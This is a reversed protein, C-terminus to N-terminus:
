PYADLLRSPGGRMKWIIRMSEGLKVTGMEIVVGVWAEAVMRVPVAADEIVIAGLDPVKKQVARKKPQISVM